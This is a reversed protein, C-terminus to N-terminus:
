TYANHEKTELLGIIITTNTETIKYRDTTILSTQKVIKDIM